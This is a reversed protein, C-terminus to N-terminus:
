RRAPGTGEGDDHEWVIQFCHSVNLLEFASHNFDFTRNLTVVSTRLDDQTVRLLEALANTTTGTAGL